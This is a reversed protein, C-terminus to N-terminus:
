YNTSSVVIFLISSFVTLCDLIIALVVDEFDGTVAALARFKMNLYYVFMAVAGVIIMDLNIVKACLVIIACVFVICDALMITYDHTLTLKM